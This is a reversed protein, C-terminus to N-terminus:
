IGTGMAGNTVAVSGVEGVKAAGGTGEAGESETHGLM